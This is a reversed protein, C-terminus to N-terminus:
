RDEALAAVALALGMAPFVKVMPGLPDTWLEPVFVAGGVLFAVGVVVSVACAARTLPRILLAGGILIDLISGVWVFVEALGGPMRGVLVALAAEHRVLGVMGSVLWFGALVLLLVPFVLTARAYMREQATAALGALTEDLSKPIKGSAARWPGADGVVDVALVRMATTRLASRWGFWGAADAVKAVGRGLADPLAVVAVPAKFGLWRRVALVLEALSHSEGEALDFDGSVEGAVALAVGDAVDDVAVTQVRAARLVLPQVWPFAALMRILRTGGYADASLVLGPRLITWRLDSAKVAADAAAKTRYFATDASASAGPASIQVFREVGQAECAGILAVVADRQVRGVDDGLGDQLVGAANVVADVGSLHPVWRDTETMTSLDAAIWDAAPLRVRGKRASRGLGVVDHGDGLLRRAVELGILGYGGLVLVRM